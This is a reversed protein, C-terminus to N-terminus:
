LMNSTREHCSKFCNILTDDVVVKFSVLDNCLFDFPFCTTKKLLFTGKIYTKQCNKARKKRKITTGRQTYKDWYKQPIFEIRIVNHTRYGTVLM